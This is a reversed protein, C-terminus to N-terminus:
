GARARVLDVVEDACGWSLTVGAGGHGYNHVCWTGDPLRETELRVEPRAPRLGVRHALVDPSGLRPELATCRRLIAAATAPDPELDASGEESTGGLVVDASRPVIYTVGDPGDENFVAEGLGPNRVVVVQGRVPTMGDDGAVDRAGLGTCNVVVPAGGAADQLSAVARRELTGGAATFRGALYALYVPMEAIPATFVIGDPYGDPLEAGTCRRLGTVATTWWPDPTEHTFLERASAMRVGSGPVAALREFEQFTRAGWDLVRDEPYARYPFWVAAAVSSTTELPMERAVIRVDLGADQLRIATSLGAVGAGVVVVNM